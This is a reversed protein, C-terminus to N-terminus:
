KQEQKKTNYYNRMSELEKAWNEWIIEGKTNIFNVTGDTPWVVKAVGDSFEGIESFWNTCLENGNVDIINFKNGTMVTAIGYENFDSVGDYWKSTIFEGKKNVFSFWCRGATHDRNFFTVKEVVSYDHQYDHYYYAPDENVGVSEEADKQEATEDKKFISHKLILYMMIAFALIEGGTVIMYQTKDDATDMKAGSVVLFVQALVFITIAVILFFTRNRM